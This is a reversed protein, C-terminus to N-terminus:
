SVQLESFGQECYLAPALMADRTDPHCKFLCHLAPLSITRKWRQMTGANALMWTILNNFFFPKVDPIAISFVCTSEGTVSVVGADYQSGPKVPACIMM